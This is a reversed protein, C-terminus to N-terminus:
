QLRFQFVWPLFNLNKFFIIIAHEGSRPIENSNTESQTSVNIVTAEENEKDKQAKALKTAYDQENLMKWAHLEEEYEAVSYLYRM